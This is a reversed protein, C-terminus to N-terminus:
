RRGSGLSGPFVDTRSATTESRLVETPSSFFLHWGGFNSHKPLKPLRFTAQSRGTGEEAEGAGTVDVRNGVAERNQRDLRRQWLPLRPPRLSTLRGVGGRVARLERNGVLEGPAAVAVVREFALFDEDKHFLARRGAGRNLVHYVM